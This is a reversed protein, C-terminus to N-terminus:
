VYFTNPHDDDEDDWDDDDEDVDVHEAIVKQHYADWKFDVEEQEEEATVDDPLSELYDMVDRCVTDVNLKQFASIQYYNEIGL